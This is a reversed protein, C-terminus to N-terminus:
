RAHERPPGHTADMPEDPAFLERFDEVFSILVVIASGALGIFFLVTIVRIVYMELSLM